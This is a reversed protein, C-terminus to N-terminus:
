WLIRMNNIDAGLFYLSFAVKLTVHVMVVLVIKKMKVRKIM